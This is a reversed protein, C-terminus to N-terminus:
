RGTGPPGGTDPLGVALGPLAQADEDGSPARAVALLDLLPGTMCTTVVALLVLMTFAAPTLVGIELGVGAVVLEMLGRTNMLAGLALADRWPMGVARAALSTGGLKGAVAVLLILAAALWLGWGQILGVDAQLGVSAFFIPLLVAITVDELRARLQEILAGTRPMIAGAMFAGFLAHIGLWETLAASGIVTLLIGALMGSSLAGARAPDLLRAALPRVGLVMAACYAASGALTLWLPTAEAGANILLVVGALLCWALLDDAAACAIALAGLPTRLLGRESLIRALVPFATISLATGMFLAFHLAPVGPDALLPYLVLAVAIGLALPTLMSSLTISLAARGKHRLQGPRVELGVLFMFLLLGLQSLARLGALQEPGFVTQSLGPALRGLLSPGLLLGVAMEGVVRPQGLRAAAWGAVRAAGVILVLQTLLTLTASM